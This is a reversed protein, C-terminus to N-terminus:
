ASYTVCDELRIQTSRVKSPMIEQEVYCTKHRYRCLVQEQRAHEATVSFAMLQELSMGDDAYVDLLTLSVAALRLRQRVVNVSVFFIAAIDEESRGQERLTQFARFQDLPHLAVRHVNEALSDEEASIEGGAESVICPVPATKALRKQKVLLELARYRRGGAPVEFMGTDQGDADGHHLSVSSLTVSDKDGAAMKLKYPKFVQRESKSGGGSVFLAVHDFPIRELMNQDADEDEEAENTTPVPLEAAGDLIKTRFSEFDPHFDVPAVQSLFEELQALDVAEAPANVLDQLTVEFYHDSAREVSEQRWTVCDRILDAAPKAGSELMGKRLADCNFEVITEVADGVAKTRFQLNNSFAIGALRGIGRFGAQRGREKRSAGVATLTNVAVRHPLGVGNDHIVLSNDDGIKLTIKGKGPRLIKESVATQVGDFSNQVYERIANRREGYMGTTISELLFSGILPAPVSAKPSSPAMANEEAM